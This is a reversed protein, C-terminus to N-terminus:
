EKIKNLYKQRLKAIKPNIVVQCYGQNPNNKFYNQHYDEAKYFIDLPEIETVIPDSYDGSKELEVKSKLVTELDKQDTYYIASRYQSGVDAGQRNLTTPDHLHWFIELIESLNIISSAYTIEVVENHGTDGGCVQKYTPNLTQGNAYGSVSSIVGKINCFVAEICWFCGGGLIIKDYNQM